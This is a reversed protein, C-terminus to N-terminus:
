EKQESPFYAAAKAAAAEIFDLCMKTLALHEDTSMARSTALNASGNEWRHFTAVNTKADGADLSRVVGNEVRELKGDRKIRVEAEIMFTRSEDSSNDVLFAASLVEKVNLDM